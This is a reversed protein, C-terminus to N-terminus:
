YPRRGSHSVPRRDRDLRRQAEAGLPHQQAVVAAFPLKGSSADVRLVARQGLSRRDAAAQWTTETGVAM